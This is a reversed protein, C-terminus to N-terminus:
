SFARPKCEIRICGPSNRTTSLTLAPDAEFRLTTAGIARIRISVLAGFAARIKSLAPLKRAQPPM